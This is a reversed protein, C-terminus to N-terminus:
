TAKISVGTASYWDAHVPPATPLSNRLPLCCRRLPHNTICHMLVRRRRHLTDAALRIMRFTPEPTNTLM